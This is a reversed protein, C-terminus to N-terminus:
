GFLGRKQTESEAVQKLRELEARIVVERQLTFTKLAPSTAPDNLIEDMADLAALDDTIRAVIDSAASKDGGFFFTVLGSRNRIAAEDASLHPLSDEVRKAHEALQFATTGSVNSLATLSTTALKASDRSHRGSDDSGSSLSQNSRHENEHTTITSIGHEIEIETADRSSNDHSSL